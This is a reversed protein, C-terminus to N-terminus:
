KVENPINKMQEELNWNSPKERLNFWKCGQRTWLSRYNKASKVTYDEYGFEVGCCPCIEYTPSKGDKGWPLSDIFLGCVRCFNM